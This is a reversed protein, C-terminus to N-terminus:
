PCQREGGRDLRRSMRRVRSCSVTSRSGPTVTCGTPATRSWASISASPATAPTSSATSRSPGCTAPTGTGSARSVCGPTVCGSPRADLSTGDSAPPRGRDRLGTLFAPRLDTRGIDGPCRWIFWGIRVGLVVDSPHTLAWRTQRLLRGRTVVPCAGGAGLVDRDFGLRQALLKVVLGHRVLAEDGDHVVLAAQRRRPAGGGVRPAEEGVSWPLRDRYRWVFERTGAAMATSSGGTAPGRLAIAISCWPTHPAFVFPGPQTAVLRTHFECAEYSSFREDFGGVDLLADRRTCSTARRPSRSPRTISTVNATWDAWSTSSGPRRARPTTGSRAGRPGSCSAAGANIEATFTALWTRSPVCDADTSAVWRGQDGGLRHQPGCRGGRPAAHSSVPPSRRRSAEGIRRHLRRRGRHGRLSRPPLSQSALAHLCSKTADIRRQPGARGGVPGADGPWRGGTGVRSDGGTRGRGPATTARSNKLRVKLM